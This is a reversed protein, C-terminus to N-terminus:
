RQNIGGRDEQVSVQVFWAGGADIRTHITGAIDMYTAEGFQLDM